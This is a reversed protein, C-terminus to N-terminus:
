KRILWCCPASGDQRRDDTEWTISIQAGNGMRISTYCLGPEFRHEVDVIVDLRLPIHVHKIYWDSPEFHYTPDVGLVFERPNKKYTTSLSLQWPTLKEVSTVKHDLITNSPVLDTRM